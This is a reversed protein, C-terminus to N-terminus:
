EGDTERSDYRAANEFFKSEMEHFDADSVEQEILKSQKKATRIALALFQRALLRAEEAKPNVRGLEQDNLLHGPGAQARAALDSPAASSNASPQSKAAHDLLEKAELLQAMIRKEQAPTLRKELTQALQFLKEARDQYYSALEERTDSLKKRLASSALALEESAKQLAKRLGEAASKDSALSKFQAEHMKEDFEEMSTIARALHKDADAKPTGKQGDDERTGVDSPLRALDAKMQSAAERLAAQKAQFMQMREQSSARGSSGSSGSEGAQAGSVGGHGRAKGKGQAGGAQDRQRAGSKDSSAGTSSKETETGSAGGEDESKGQSGGSQAGERHATKGSFGGSGSKEAETGSAGGHAEGGNSRFQRSGTRRPGGQGLGEGSGTEEADAGSAGGHGQGGPSASEETKAGSGVGPGAAGGQTSTPERTESQPSGKQGEGQDPASQQAQGESAGGHGPAGRQGPAPEQAQPQASESQGEGEGQGEVGPQDPPPQAPEAGGGEAPAAGSPAQRAQASSAQGQGEGEGAGPEQGQAQTNDSEGPAQAQGAESEQGQEQQSSRQGSGEGEGEGSQDGAGSEPTEPSGRHIPPERQEALFRDFEKKLNEEHYTAAALKRTLTDFMQAIAESDYKRLYTNKVVEITDPKPKSPPTFGPGHAPPEKWKEGVLKRLTRYAKDEPPLASAPDYGALQASAEDFDALVGNIAAIEAPTFQFVPSDRVTRLHEASYTVDENISDLQSKDQATLEEKDTLAWTKKLIARTYELIDKLTEIVHLEGGIDLDQSAQWWSRYPIIEVFYINSKSARNQPKPTAIRIGSAEAHFVIADGVSLDYDELELTYTDTASRVGRELPMGIQRREGNPFEFYIAAKQLGFDDYLQFTVPVSAVNTAMYDREPSVLEIRPSSLERFEIRLPPIDRNAVNEEGVLELKLEGERDAKFPMIFSGNMEPQAEVVQGNLGTVLAKSLKETARVTLEIESGEIVSLTFDQVDEVYPQIATDGPLTVRATM